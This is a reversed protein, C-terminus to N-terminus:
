EGQASASYLELYKEAIPKWSFKLSKEAIKEAIEDYNEAIDKIAQAVSLVSNAEASYGVEGEPFQGDFGQGRTYVVPLGQSMAEAYVLGFSETFSPMVFMDNNRYIDILKEKQQQSIYTARASSIVKKYEKKSAIKGVVTLRTVWGEEELLKMAKLIAQTNKNKDIRGAYVLNVEKQKIREFKEYSPSPLINSHWFRDIGNPIIISKSFLEARYRKPVYKDFVQKRYAESLFCIFAAQRMIKVGRRRLHVLKKFFDNVDTNRISVIYPINHKKKMKMALNGDTFLTYAHIVDFEKVNCSSALAKSIKLQKLSFIFRDRKRFCESVIVNSNPVIVAETKKETPAFVISKIGTADLHEIMTQHLATTIYNRNIHLVKM